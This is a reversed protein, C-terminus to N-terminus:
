LGMEQRPAHARECWKNGRHICIHIVKRLKQEKSKRVEGQNAAPTYTNLSTKQSSIKGAGNQSNNKETITDETSTRQNNQILSRPLPM